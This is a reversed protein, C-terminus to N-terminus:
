KVKFGDAFLYVEKSRSRSADPKIANVKKFNNKLLKVLADFGAGHFIKTLFIGEPKLVQTAFHAAMEVLYMSRDQDVTRIGSTNPAMDSLVVDVNREGVKAILSNVTSVDSFDGKIFDVGAIPNMSLIDLAIVKGHPGVITKVYESWAGPAAGLDVVTMKSKLFKYKEQIEKIKFVSRARLGEKQARKVYVDSFHEKLWKASSKSRAM